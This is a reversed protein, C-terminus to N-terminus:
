TETLKRLETERVFRLNLTKGNKGGFQLIMLCNLHLMDEKTM